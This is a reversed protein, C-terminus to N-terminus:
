EQGDIRALYPSFCTEDPRTSSFGFALILALSGVFVTNLTRVISLQTDIYTKMNTNIEKEKPQIFSNM